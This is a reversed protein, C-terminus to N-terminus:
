ATLVAEPHYQIRDQRQWWGAQELAHHNLDIGAACQKVIEALATRRLEGSSVDFVGPEYHGNDRTVLGNWFYSGLLAWFTLAQCNVGVVRARQLGRWAAAAWRIQEDVHDGLHVETVALPLNYRHHAEVLIAEVAQIGELRLRVAEVDAFHGESSLMSPSYRDVRHDLYRDSTVYYNIGIVDPPCPHDSFWLIEREEIGGQLLYNFLPHHRDVTGTLLDFTLWRRNNLLDRMWTLPETSWARGLDETQVLQARPAEKRIEEMSLVTAKVQNLLATLFSRESHHHPFWVGYRCAFRATTHPENVPTYADISPYRRAVEGAYAALKEPFASDLLSTAPPGSGHHVLGVIPRLGAQGVAALYRDSWAWDPNRAHREWLLGCRLGTLGLEAFAALDSEREAHGSLKMQDFYRDGVRNCTYEAGGWIAVGEHNANAVIPGTERM